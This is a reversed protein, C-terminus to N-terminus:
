RVNNVGLQSLGHHQCLHPAFHFGARETCAGHACTGAPKGEPEIADDLDPGPARITDPHIPELEIEAISVGDPAIAIRRIGAARMEAAMSVWATSM